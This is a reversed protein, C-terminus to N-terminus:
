ANRAATTRDQSGESREPHSGKSRSVLGDLDDDQVFHLIELVLFWVVWVTMRFLTFSGMLLFGFWM